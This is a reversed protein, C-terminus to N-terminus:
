RVVLVALATVTVLSAATTLLIVRSALTAGRGYLEALMFPGTGTPLAALLVAAMAWERGVHLGLAPLLWFGAVGTLAPMAIMKLLFIPGVGRPSAGSGPLALFAGITVLATPSAATALLDVFHAATMPLPWGIMRWGLGALPALVLPNGLLARTVKGLSALLGGGAKLGVEVLLLAAAFLLSITLLSAIVAAELGADGLLQEAIPIGIFATNAYSAALAALARDTLSAPGGVVLALGFTAFMGIAFAAVFGGHGAFGVTGEALSRFLLAPLALWVTFGNLTAVGDPGLRRWRGFAYGAGIMAFVPLIAALITPM